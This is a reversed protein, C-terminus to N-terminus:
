VNERIALGIFYCGETDSSTANQCEVKEECHNRLKNRMKNLPSVTCIYLERAESNRNPLGQKPSRFNTEDFTWVLSCEAHKERCKINSCILSNDLIVVLSM